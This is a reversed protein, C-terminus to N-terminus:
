SGGYQKGYHRYWNVNGAIAYRLQRKEMDKGNAKKFVIAMKVPTQIRYRVTIKIQM